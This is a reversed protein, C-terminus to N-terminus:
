PISTQRFIMLKRILYTFVAVIALVIIKSLWLNGTLHQLSILLPGSALVTTLSLLTNPLVTHRLKRSHTFVVYHHIMSNHIAGAGAGAWQAFLTPTQLWLALSFILVDVVMGVLGTILYLIIERANQATLHKKV